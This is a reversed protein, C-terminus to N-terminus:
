NYFTYSTYIIIRLGHLSAFSTPMHESVIVKGPQRSAALHVYIEPIDLPVISWLSNYDTAYDHIKKPRCFKSM